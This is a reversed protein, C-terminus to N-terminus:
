DTKKNKKVQMHEDRYNQTKCHFRPAVALHEADRAFVMNGIFFDAALDLLCDPWVFVEGYLAALHFSVSM